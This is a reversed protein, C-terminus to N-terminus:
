PPAPACAGGGRAHQARRQAAGGHGAGHISGRILAQGGAATRGQRRAHSAASGAEGGAWMCTGHIKTRSITSKQPAFIRAAIAEPRQSHRPPSIRAGARKADHLVHLVNHGRIMIRPVLVCDSGRLLGIGCGQQMSPRVASCSIVRADASAVAAGTGRPQAWGRRHKGARLLAGRPPRAPTVSTTCCNTAPRGASAAAAPAYRCRSAPAADATPPTAAAASAAAARASAATAPAPAARAPASPVTAVLASAAPAASSDPNNLENTCARTGWVLGCFPLKGKRGPMPESSRLRVQRQPAASLRVFPGWTMLCALMPAQHMCAPAFRPRPAAAAAPAASAPPRQLPPPSAPPPRRPARPPAPRPRAAELGALLRVHASGATDQWCPQNRAEPQVDSPGPVGSRKRPRTCVTQM